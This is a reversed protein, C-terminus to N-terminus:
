KSINAVVSEIQGDQLHTTMKEQKSVDHVSRVLTGDQARTISFGRRCIMRPDSVEILRRYERIRKQEQVFFRKLASVFDAERTKLFESAASVCRM